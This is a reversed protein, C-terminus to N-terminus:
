SANNKEAVKLEAITEAINEVDIIGCRIEDLKEIIERHHRETATEERHKWRDRFELYARGFQYAALIGIGIVFTIEVPM